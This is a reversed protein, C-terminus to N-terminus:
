HKLLKKALMTQMAWIDSGSKKLDQSIEKGGPVDV